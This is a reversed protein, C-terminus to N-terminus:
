GGLVHTLLAVAAGALLTLLCRGRDKRLDVVPLLNHSAVYMFVGAAVGSVVQSARGGGVGAAAVIVGVVPMVAGVGVLPWYRRAQGGLKLLSAYSAALPVHHALLALATPMVTGAAAAAALAAGDVLGHLAFGVFASVGLHQEHADIGDHDMHLHDHHHPAEGPGAPLAGHIAAELLLVGLFGALVALGQHEGLGASHPLLHLLATGTLLGASATLLTDRHREWVLRVAPAVAGLLAGAVLLLAGALEPRVQM